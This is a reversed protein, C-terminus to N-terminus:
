RLGICNFELGALILVLDADGVGARKANRCGSWMSMPIFPAFVRRISVASGLIEQRACETITSYDNM